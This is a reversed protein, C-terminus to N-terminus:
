ESLIRYAVIDYPNNDHHWFYNCTKSRDIHGMRYQVEVWQEPECPMDVVGGGERWGPEINATVNFLEAYHEGENGNRGGDNYKNM